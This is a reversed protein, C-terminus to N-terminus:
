GKCGAPYTVYFFKVKDQTSYKVKSNAPVFLVDGAKGLYKNGNVTCELTGGIIYCVEDGKIDCDFSTNDLEMFGTSMNPSEKLNLIEKIKVDDQPNGTNFNELYVSDGRVLRLGCPDAEKEIQPPQQSKILTAMVEGVIKKILAPNVNKLHTTDINKILNEVQNRSYKTEAGVIKRETNVIINIKCENAADRAAPTIICQPNVYITTEQQEAYKKIDAATILKKM